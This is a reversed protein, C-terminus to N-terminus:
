GRHKLSSLSTSALDCKPHSIALILIARTSYYETEWPSPTTQATTIPRASRNNSFTSFASTPGIGFNTCPRSSIMLPNSQPQYPQSNLHSHTADTVSSSRRRDRLPTLLMTTPLSWSPCICTGNPSTTSAPQASSNSWLKTLVSPKETQRRITHLHCPSSIMLFKSQLL